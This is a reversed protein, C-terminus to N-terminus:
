LQDAPHCASSRVPADMLALTANWGLHAGWATWIGPRYFALRPFHRRPHHQRYGASHSQSQSLHTLRVSGLAPRHSGVVRGRWSAQAVGRLRDGRGAAAAGPDTDDLQRAFIIASRARIRSSVPEEWLSRAACRWGGGGRDWCCIRHDLWARCTLRSGVCDEWLKRGKPRDGLYCISPFSSSSCDPGCGDPRRRTWQLPRARSVSQRDGVLASLFPAGATGPDFFCRGGLM